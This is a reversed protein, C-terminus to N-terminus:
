NSCGLAYEFNRLNHELLEAFSGEFKYTGGSWLKIVKIGKEEFFNRYREFEPDTLFVVKPDRAQAKKLMETLVKISPEGEKHHGKILTVEKINFKNLLHYFVPHGLVLIERYKCLGLRAYNRELVELKSTLQKKRIEYVPANLPDRIQLFKVLDEVLQKVRALDFWLHPDIFRTQERALTLLPKNARLTYVRKAWHETGVIIVLDAKNIIKWQSPTPEFSHFDKAETQLSIVHHYPQSLEKAIKELPSNSVVITLSYGEKLELSLILFFIFVLSQIKKEFNFFSKRRQVMSTFLYKLLTGSLPM